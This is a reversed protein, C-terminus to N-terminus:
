RYFGGATAEVLKAVARVNELKAARPIEEHGLIFKRDGRMVDLTEQVRATMREVSATAYQSPDVGGWIWIDGLKERMRRLDANGLPPPTVAEIGDLRVEALVELMQDLHGCMHPLFLKGAAHTIDAYDNLQSVCYQAYMAPGTLMASTDEMPRLLQGPGAAALRYYQKNREHMVDMLAAMQDAHDMMAMLTPQVDMVWMLLHMLPTAPVDITAQGVMDIERQAAAYNPAYVEDEVMAQYAAFDAPDKVLHERTFTTGSDPDPQQRQRLDGKPTHIVLTGAALDREFKVSRQTTTVSTVRHLHDAGIIRATRASLERYPLASEPMDPAIGLVKRCFGDNLEPLWPLRDPTKGALLDAARQSPM